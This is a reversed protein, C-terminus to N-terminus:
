RLGGKIEKVINLNWYEHFHHPCQVIHVAEELNKEFTHKYSTSPVM